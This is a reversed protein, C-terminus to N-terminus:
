RARRLPDGHQPRPLRHHQLEPQRLAFDNAPGSIRGLETWTAGGNGSAQVSSTNATSSVSQAAVQVQAHGDALERAHRRPSLHRRQRQLILRKGGRDHWGITVDAATRITTTTRSSGTATGAIRAMTTPSRAPKSITACTPRPRRPSTRTPAHDTQHRHRRARACAARRHAQSRRRRHRELRSVVQGGAATVAKAAADTSNRKSSTATRPAPLPANRPRPRARHRRPAAVALLRRSRREWSEFPRRMLVDITMQLGGRTHGWDAKAFPAM